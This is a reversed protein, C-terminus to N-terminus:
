RVPTPHGHDVVAIPAELGGRLLALRFALFALGLVLLLVLRVDRHVLCRLRAHHAAVHATETALMAVGALLGVRLVVFCFLGAIAIAYFLATPTWSWATLLVNLLLLSFVALWTRRLVIRFLVLMFFSGLSFQLSDLILFVVRSAFLRSSRLSHLAPIVAADDPSREHLMIILLSAVAMLTGALIGLLLDRGVLPDNLRRSMVRTWTILTRPWLRRVHPEFALYALWSFGGWM